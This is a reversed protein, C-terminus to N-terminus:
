RRSQLEEEREQLFKLASNHEPRMGMKSLDPASPVVVEFNGVKKKSKVVIHSGGEGEGEAGAGEEWDDEGWWENEADDAGAELEESDGPGGNGEKEDGQEQRAVAQLVDDPLEEEEEEEIKARPRKRSKSQEIM